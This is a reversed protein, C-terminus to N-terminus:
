NPQFYNQFNNFRSLIAYQAAFDLSPLWSKHEAQARLYQARAHELAAHVMPSADVAFSDEAPTSDPPVPLSDSELQIEAGSIGTCKSLNERLVDAAGQAEAIRLRVRASSLRAKTGEIESDIGAKVREDIAALMKKSDAESEKLRALRQEWKQLEAYTLVTDQIVQNRQDKKRLTAATT